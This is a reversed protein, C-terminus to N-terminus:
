KHNGLLVDRVLLNWLFFSASVVPRVVEGVIKSATADRCLAALEWSPFLSGWRGPYDALFSVLRVAFM